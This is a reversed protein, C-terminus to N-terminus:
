PTGTLTMWLRVYSEFPANMSTGAVGKELPGYIASVPTRLVGRRYMVAAPGCGLIYLVPLSALVGVVYLWTKGSKGTAEDSM